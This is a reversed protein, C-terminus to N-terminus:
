AKNRYFEKAWQPWWSPLAVRPWDDFQIHHLAFDGLFFDPPHGGGYRRDGLLAVGLFGAHCRIQHMVGSHMVAEYLSIGDVRDLHRFSTTADYWKGRHPTHKGRQPVMSGRKRKHHAMPTYCQHSEWRPEKASLFWYVKRFSRQTFGMRLRELSEPDQAM